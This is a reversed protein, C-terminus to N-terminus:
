QWIAPDQATTTHLEFRSGSGLSLTILPNWQQHGPGWPDAQCPVGGWLDGEIVHWCCPFPDAHFCPLWASIFHWHHMASVGHKWTAAEKRWNECCSWICPIQTTYPFFVTQLCVTDSSLSPNHCSRSPSAIIPLWQLSVCAKFYQLSM